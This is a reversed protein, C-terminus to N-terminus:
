THGRADSLLQKIQCLPMDKLDNPKIGMEHLEKRKSEPIGTADDIEKLIKARQKFFRAKEEVNMTILEKDGPKIIRENAQQIRKIKKQMGVSSATTHSGKSIKGSSAALRRLELEEEPKIQMEVLKHRLEAM